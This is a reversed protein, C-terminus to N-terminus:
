ETEPVSEVVERAGAKLADLQERRSIEDDLHAIWMRAAEEMGEIDEAERFAEKAKEFNNVGYYAYGLLQYLMGPNKVGGKEKASELRAIAEDWREKDIFIQAARMDLESKPSLRAANELAALSLDLERAQHWASSLLEWHDATRAVKDNDLADQLVEGAELPMDNFLLLRVLNLIEKEDTVFGKKYAIFNFSGAKKDEKLALYIQVLNRWYEKKEPFHVLTKELVNASEALDGQQYTLAMWLRFLNEPPNPEANIALKTFRIGKDYDQLEAAAMAGLMYAQRSVNEQTPLWIELKRLANKWDQVNAYLQALMYNMNDNMAEPLEGEAVAIEFAEIAPEAEERQMHVYGKNQFVVAREYPNLDYSALRSILSLAQEFDDEELAAQVREINEAVRERMMQAPAAQPIFVLFALILVLGSFVNPITKMM